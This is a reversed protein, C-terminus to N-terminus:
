RGPVFVFGISLRLNHITEEAAPPSGNAEPIRTNRFRPDVPNFDERDFDTFVEDRAEFRVGIGETLAFNLGGGFVFMFKTLSSNQDNVQPDLYFTTGGVGGFGLVNARGLSYAATVVGAYSFQTVQQGTSFLVSTDNAVKFLVRDFNEGGVEPRAFSLTFGLGVNDSIFYHADGGLFAADRFPAAEGYLYVGGSPIVQFAGVEIQARANGATVMVAGAFVLAMSVSKAFGM